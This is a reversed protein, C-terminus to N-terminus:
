GGLEAKLRAMEDNVAKMERSIDDIQAQMQTVLEWLEPVLGGDSTPEASRSSSEVDPEPRGRQAAYREKLRELEAPMYLAHSVVHGRGEPTLSILLGKKELSELVPRLAALDAIPEMRAARGRLEGVTQDGRLFLETIVALEVKDVGLWDYLYHRFKDVRGSGEILGVAGLHRLRELAEEVRDAELQMVPSRNNKQNCAVVVGNLTMPYADPTTKAKEVLVGAVRREVLSLPQWRPAAPETASDNPVSDTM